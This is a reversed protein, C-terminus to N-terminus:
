RSVDGHVHDSRAAATQDQDPITHSANAGQFFDQASCWLVEGDSNEACLRV